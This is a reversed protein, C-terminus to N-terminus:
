KRKLVWFLMYTPIIILAILEVIYTIFTVVQATGIGINSLWSKARTILPPQMIQSIPPESIVPHFASAITENNDMPSAGDTLAIMQGKQLHVREEEDSLFRIDANGEFLYLWPTQEAREELAFRGNQIAIEASHLRIILPRNAGGQGWLWGRELNLTLDNVEAITEPPFIVSGSGWPIRKTEPRTILEFDLESIQQLPDVRKAQAYFGPATAVLTLPGSLPDSLRYRLSVPNIPRAVGGPGATIWAFPLPAGNEGRVQGSLISSPILSLPLNAIPNENLDVLQGTTRYGQAALSREDATVLYQSAPLGEFAFSGNSSITTTYASIDSLDISWITLGNLNVGKTSTQITGKIESTQAHVSLTVTSASSAGAPLTTEVPDPSVYCKNELVKQPVYFKYTTPSQSLAELELEAIGSENTVASAHRSRWEYLITSAQVLLSGIPQGTVDDVVRVPVIVSRSVDVSLWREDRAQEGSPSKAILVLHLQGEPLSADSKYDEHCHLCDPDSPKTLIPIEGNPNISLDFRFSGDPRPQSTLVATNKSGSWLELHLTVDRLDSQSYFIEGTVFFPATYGEKVYLTEGNAPSAIIVKLDQSDVPVGAPGSPPIYQVPESYAEPSRPFATCWNSSIGNQHCAECRLELVRAAQVEGRRHHCQSCESVEVQLDNKDASNGKPEDSPSKNAYNNITWLRVTNDAAGSALKKGDPAFAVSFVFDKHGGFIQLQNGNSIRWIRVTMDVSGSALTNGDPSFAVGLVSSTHGQLIRLEAGDAVRWLRVTKDFSGSALMSGDPSFDLCRVWDTHGALTQLFAGDPVHWLRITGDSLGAALTEGDPSFTVSRVGNTEKDLVLVVTGDNVQWLRITNDDSASAVLRGDPSFAVSRVWNTHGHLVRIPKGDPVQWLTVNNDFLGAALMSGDPSFALGRVWTTVEVLGVQSWNQTEYTAIGSSTGVALLKGDPSFAIANARENGNPALSIIRVAVEGISADVVFVYFLVFFISNSILVPPIIRRIGM